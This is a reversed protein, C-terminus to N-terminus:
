LFSTVSNSSAITCPFYSPSGLKLVHTVSGTAEVPETLWYLCWPGQCTGRPCCRCVAALVPYGHPCPELMQASWLTAQRFDRLTSVAPKHGDEQLVSTRTLVFQPKCRSFSVTEEANLNMASPNEAQSTWNPVELFHLIRERRCIM